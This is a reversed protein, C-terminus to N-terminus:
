PAPSASRRGGAAHGLNWTAGATGADRGRPDTFTLERGDRANVLFRVPSM